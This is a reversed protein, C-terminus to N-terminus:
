GDESTAKLVPRLKGHHLPAAMGDAHSSSVETHRLIRRLVGRFRGLDVFRQRQIGEGPSRIPGGGTAHVIDGRIIPGQGFDVRQGPAGVGVGLNVHQPYLKELLVVHGDYVLLDGPQARAPDDGMDVLHYRRRLTDAALSLMRATELYPYPIGATTYVLATFHSCDISCANCAPCERLRAKPAPRRASLCDNCSNCAASDGVQKGGYVYSVQAEDLLAAATKVLTQRMADPTPKASAATVTAGWSLHAALWLRVAWTIILM